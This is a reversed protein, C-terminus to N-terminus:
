VKRVGTIEFGINLSHLTGSAVRVAGEVSDSHVEFSGSEGGIVFNVLYKHYAISLSTTNLNGTFHASGDANLTLSDVKFHVGSDDVYGVTVFEQEESQTAGDYDFSLGYNEYWVSGYVGRINQNYYAGVSDADLMNFFEDRPVGVYVRVGFRDNYTMALESTNNDYGVFEIFSSTVTSGDTYYVVGKQSDIM